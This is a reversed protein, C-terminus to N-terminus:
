SRTPVAPLFRSVCSAITLLDDVKLTKIMYYKTCSRVLCSMIGVVLLMLTVVQVLPAKNTDSIIRQTADM